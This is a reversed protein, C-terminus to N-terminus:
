FHSTETVHIMSCWIQPPCQGIVAVSKKESKWYRARKRCRSGWLGFKAGETFIRFPMPSIESDTNLRTM